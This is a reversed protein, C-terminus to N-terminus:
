SIKEVLMLLALLHQRLASRDRSKMWQEMARELGAVVEDARRAVSSCTDSAGGSEPAGSPATVLRLHGSVAGSQECGGAVAGAPQTKL